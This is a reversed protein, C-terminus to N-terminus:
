EKVVKKIMVGSKDHTKLIYIGPAFNQTDITISKGNLKSYTTKQGVMNFLQVENSSETFNIILNEHFPNPYIRIGSTNEELGTIVVTLPISMESTCEHITTNVTYTGSNDVLVLTNLNEGPLLDGDKFWQNGSEISSLLKSNDKDYQIVPVPPNICFVQTAKTAPLYYANGAQQATVSAKGAELLQISANTLTLNESASSFTVDLGSSASAVLDIDDGIDGAPIAEFV